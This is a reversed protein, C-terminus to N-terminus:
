VMGVTMSNAFTLPGGTRQNCELLSNTTNLLSDEANTKSNTYFLLQANNDENLNDTASRKLTAMDDGSILCQFMVGCRGLKGTFIAPASIDLCDKSPKRDDSPLTASM